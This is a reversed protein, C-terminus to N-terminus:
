CCLEERCVSAFAWIYHVLTQDVTVSIVLVRMRQSSQGVKVPLALLVDVKQICSVM